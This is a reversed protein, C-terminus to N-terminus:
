VLDKCLTKLAKASVKLTIYQGPGILVRRKQLNPLFRRRTAKLSFPRNNGSSPQKGTLDCRRAM